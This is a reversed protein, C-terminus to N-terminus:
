QIEKQLNNFTRHGGYGGEVFSYIAPLVKRCLEEVYPGGVRPHRSPTPRHLLRLSGHQLDSHFRVAEGGIRYRCRDGCYQGKRWPVVTGM